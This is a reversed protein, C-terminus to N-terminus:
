ALRSVLCRAFLSASPPSLRFFLEPEFVELEGLTPRGEFSVMDVRAYLWPHTLAALAQRATRDWSSDGADLALSGGFKAQVRFDGVKPVKRLGHSFVIGDAGHFYILSLEGEKEISPVFPQALLTGKKLISGIVGRRSALEDPTVKLTRYGGASIGPKVVFEPYPLAALQKMAADLDGELRVTPVIPVGKKELELLYKKDLNWHVLAAPNWFPVRSVEAALLWATFAEIERYYSWPSRVVVAAIDPTVPDGWCLPLVGVGEAKLAAVALRDDDTLDPYEHSTLFAVRM